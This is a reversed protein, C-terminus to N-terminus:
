LLTRVCATVVDGQLVWFAVGSAIAGVPFWMPCRRPRTLSPCRSELWDVGAGITYALLLVTVGAGFAFTAVNANQGSTANITYLFAAGIQLVSVGALLDRLRYGPNITAAEAM